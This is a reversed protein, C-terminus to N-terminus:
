IELGQSQTIKPAYSIGYGMRKASIVTRMFAFIALIYRNSYNYYLYRKSSDHMHLVTVRYVKRHSM